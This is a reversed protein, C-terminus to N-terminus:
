SQPLKDTGQSQGELDSLQDKAKQQAVQMAALREEMGIRFTELRITNESDANATQTVTVALPDNTDTSADAGSLTLAHPEITHDTLLVSTDIWQNKKLPGHKERAQPLRTISYNEASVNHDGDPRFVDFIDEKSTLKSKDNM